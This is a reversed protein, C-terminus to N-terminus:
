GESYCIGAQQEIWGGLWHISLDACLCPPAASLTVAYTFNEEYILVYHSLRSVVEQSLRSVFISIKKRNHLRFPFFWTSIPHQSLSTSLPFHPSPPTLPSLFFTLLHILSFTFVFFSFTLFPFSFTLFPFSFTLFPFSLFFLRLLHRM